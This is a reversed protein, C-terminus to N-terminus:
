EVEEFPHLEDLFDAYYDPGEISTAPNPEHNVHTRVQGCRGCKAEAWWKWEDADKSDLYRRHRAEQPTESPKRERRVPRRPRGDEDFRVGLPVRSATQATMEPKGGHRPNPSALVRYKDGSLLGLSRNARDWWCHVTGADDVHADRGIDGPRLSPEPAGPDIAILKVRRGEVRQRLRDLKEHFTLRRSM